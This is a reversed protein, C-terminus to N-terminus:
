LKAARPPAPAAEFAEKMEHLAEHFYTQLADNRLHLSAVNFQLSEEKVMYAIGYGDPVVEGWGYGDYNESPIQSTSLRWHATEAYSPDTFISPKPEDPKLSLRLGLLHRDVGRGEIAKAMYSSQANIARRGLEGRTKAPVNPDEMAQVWQVSEVSVSRCTETRGYAFKKTQASEYTPAVKGHLKYYALQIAMQAFADPSVGFKKILNKGYAEFSVVRVDHKAVLEDFKRGAREIAQWLDRTLDFQVREPQPLTPAAVPTGHHIRDKRLNEVIWDCLRSTPTADMMSHEGNFGAKGNDFIIFQLSKDFFRNRGDGHWCARSTEEKTIPETDDLCVVFAATEIKDLSRRNTESASILRERLKTWEDRHETTLLGVSHDKETGAFDYIRQLQKQIEATSLQRGDTHTTELIYFQNHRMVAIHNNTTLDANRTIDSPIKPIRTSNFMYKYQIMDLPTNRAMDPELQETAVQRRFELAATIISAARAAPDRRRKDDKFVFFYNVNIVTPDRYGMYAYDNWWDILWSTEKTAARELLRRQLEEGIGGARAFDTVAQKTKEYAADDVLPRVTQLYRPLTEELPPVPLKPLSAQHMYMPKAGGGAGGTSKAAPRSTSFGASTPRVAAQAAIPAVQPPQPTGPKSSPVLAEPVWRMRWAVRSPIYLDYVDDDPLYGLGDHSSYALEDEFSPLDVGQIVIESAGM